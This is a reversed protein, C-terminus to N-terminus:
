AFAYSSQVNKKVRNVALGRDAKYQGSSMETWTSLTLSSIAYAFFALARHLDDGTFINALM